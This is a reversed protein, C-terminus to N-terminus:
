VIILMAAEDAYELYFMLTPSPSTEGNHSRSITVARGEPMQPPPLRNRWRTRSNHNHLESCAKNAHLLAHSERNAGIELRKNAAEINMYTTMGVAKGSAREITAFLFMSGITRLGLRREIEVGMNEPEPVKTYWIRHLEGDGAAEVLDDHHEMTLPVVSAFNGEAAFLDPWVSM